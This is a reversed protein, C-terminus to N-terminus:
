RRVGPLPVIKGLSLLLQAAAPCLWAESGDGCSGHPGLLTSRFAGAGVGGMEEIFSRDEGKNEPSAEPKTCSEQGSNSNRFLGMSAPLIVPLKIKFTFLSFHFDFHRVMRSALGLESPTQGM